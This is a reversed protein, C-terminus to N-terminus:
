SPWLLAMCETCFRSGGAGSKWSHRATETTHGCYTCRVMRINISVYAHACDGGGGCMPEYRM